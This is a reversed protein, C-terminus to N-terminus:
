PTLWLPVGCEDRLAVTRTGTTVERVFVVEDDNFLGRTGIVRIEDGKKFTLEADALFATPAMVLDFPQRTTRMMVVVPSTATPVRPMGMVIGTLTVEASSQYARLSRDQAAVRKPASSIQAGFGFLVAFFALLVFAPTSDRTM